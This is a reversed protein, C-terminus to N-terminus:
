CTLKTNNRNFNVTSIRIKERRSITAASSSSTVAAYGRDINLSPMSCVSFGGHKYYQLEESEQSLEKSHQNSIGNM